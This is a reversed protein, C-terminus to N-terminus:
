GLIIMCSELSRVLDSFYPLFSKTPFIKDQWVGCFGMAEQFIVRSRAMIKKVLPRDIEVTQASEAPQGSNRPRQNICM